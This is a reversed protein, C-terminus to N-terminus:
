KGLRETEAAAADDHTHNQKAAAALATDDHPKPMANGSGIAKTPVEGELGGGSNDGFGKEEGWRQPQRPARPRRWQGASPHPSRM